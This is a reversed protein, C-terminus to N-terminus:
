DCQRVRNPTEFSFMKNRFPTRANACMSFFQHPIDRYSYKYWRDITQPLILVFCAFYLMEQSALRESSSVFFFIFMFLCCRGLQPELNCRSQLGRGLKFQAKVELGCSIEALFSTPCLHERSEPWRELHTKQQQRILINSNCQYTTALCAGLSVISGVATVM